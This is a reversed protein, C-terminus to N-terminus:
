TGGEIAAMAKRIFARIGRREAIAGKTFQGHRYRGNRAGKPAGSGKAGGHMRCRKKGSVAPSQCPSAQRTTAGCRPAQRLLSPERTPHMPNDLTKM